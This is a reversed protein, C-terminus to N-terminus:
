NSERGSLLYVVELVIETAMEQVDAKTVSQWGKILVEPSFHEDLEKYQDFVEIQGRASDFASKIGNTLLARTQELELDTIEGQQIAVLQQKILNVAKEELEADIGATVFVLGYHAAYSSSAYYAMSEKERVNMFLKSHAFGGFIGNTMQMKVYDPHTFTIPTSFGLHLKGQKMDQQEMVHNEEHKVNVEREPTHTRDQVERSEFHFLKKVKETMTKVDIDGVIYIDIEDEQIMKTYTEFLSRATIADVDKETGYTSTSAPGDPRLLELLRKQAYRSKDDYISRIREKISRKERNVIAEDFVGNVINPEFIVASILGIVEDLVAGQTLFEDNVCEANVTFIHSAGRKGVDTYLVTGYLEDLQNRFETETRYQANSDQLVNSLVTRSAASDQNLETKFKVSFNITKFQESKRIYLSVGKQLEIKEFM